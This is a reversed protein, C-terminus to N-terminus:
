SRMQKVFTKRAHKTHPLSRCRSGLPLRSGPARLGLLPLGAGKPESNRPILSLLLGAGGQARLESGHARLESGAGAVVARIWCRDVMRVCEQCCARCLKHCMWLVNGDEGAESMVSAHFMSFCMTFCQFRKGSM